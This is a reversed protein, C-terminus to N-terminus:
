RAAGEPQRKLAKRVVRIQGRHSLEDEMVHFWAWHQDPQFDDWGTLVTSLWADDRKALEALTAARSGELEALLEELSRGTVREGRKGFSMAGLYPRFDDTSYPNVGQFSFIHYLRDVAAIHALLMGVSNSFGPPIADLEKVTMGEVDQLTTTRAFRMMQVLAGIQPSYPPQVEIRIM